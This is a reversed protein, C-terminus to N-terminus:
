LGGIIKLAATTAPGIKGDEALKTKVLIPLGKIGYAPGPFKPDTNVAHQYLKVLYALNKDTPDNKHNKLYTNVMFGTIAAIGPKTVDIVDGFSSLPPYPANPDPPIVDGIYMSLAGATPIDYNGSITLPGHLAVSMKDGQAATQFKTVLDHYTSTGDFAHAKIYDFLDHAPRVADGNAQVQSVFTPSGPPVPQGTVPNVVVPAAETPTVKNGAQTEKPIKSKVSNEYLFYGGAGTATLLGLIALPPLM